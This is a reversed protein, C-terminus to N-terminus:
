KNRPQNQTVLQRIPLIKTLRCGDVYIKDRYTSGSKKDSDVTVFDNIKVIKIYRLRNKPSFMYEETM